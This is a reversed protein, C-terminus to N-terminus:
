IKLIRSLIDAGPEDTDVLEEQLFVGLVQRVENPNMEGVDVSVRATSFGRQVQLYLSQVVPPQYVFWFRAIERFPYFTTGVVVGTETVVVRIIRPESLTSLYIVIACMLIILAFLFNASAVAYILLGLGVLSMGWYWRPGREHFPRDWAVWELLEEGYTGPEVGVANQVDNEAM